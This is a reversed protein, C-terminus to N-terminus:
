CRLSRWGRRCCVLEDAARAQFERRHAVVPPCAGFGGGDSNITACSRLWIRALVLAIRRLALLFLLIWLATIGYRLATRAWASRAFMTVLEGNM